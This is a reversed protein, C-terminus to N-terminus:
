NLSRATTVALLVAVAATLETTLGDETFGQSKNYLLQALLMTAAGFMQAVAVGVAGIHTNLILMLLITVAASTIQIVSIISTKGTYYVHPLLLSWIGFLFQTMVTPAVVPRAAHYQEGFVLGILVEVIAVYVTLGLGVVGVYLRRVKRFTVVRRGAESHKLELFFPLWASGIAGVFVGTIAGLQYGVGFRGADEPGFFAAVALSGSAQMIFLAIAGPMLPVGVRMVKAVTQQQLRAFASRNPVLLAGVAVAMVAIQALFWSAATSWWLVALVGLGATGFSTLAQITVFARPRRQFQFELLYPESILSMGLLVFCLSLIHSPLASTGLEFLAVLTAAVLAVIGSTVAVQHLAAMVRKRFEVSQEDFYVIGAAASSAIGLFIRAGAAFSAAASIHGFEEVSLTRAVVPLSLLAASRAFAQGLIYVASNSVLNGVNLSRALPKM